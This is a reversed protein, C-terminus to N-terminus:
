EYQYTPLGIGQFYLSVLAKTSVGDTKNSNGLQTFTKYYKDDQKELAGFFM